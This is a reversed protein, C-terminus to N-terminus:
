QRQDSHRTGTRTYSVYGIEILDGLHLNWQHIFYGYEVLLRYCCYIYGIFTGQFVSILISYVTPIATLTDVCM